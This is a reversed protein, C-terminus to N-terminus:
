RKRSRKARQPAQGAQADAGYSDEENRYEGLDIWVKVGIVGMTTKAIALGYDIHKQLTSLPVSGRMAKETRSMEAGGLRGNMEIKIGEVGSEMVQDLSRKMVRRFSGRKVLQQAIDEAVLVASRHPQHIEVIKLEMRRGTLDELEAKLRDVEQGKKGIIIGPRATHLHVIVQDRTREIEIRPIGAFEYKKKVFRRIKQDEILLDGFEKKTAYWRSRWDEVIGVRFGTPRVKQGM